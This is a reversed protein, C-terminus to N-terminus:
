GTAAPKVARVLVYDTLRMEYAWNTVVDIVHGLREIEAGDL